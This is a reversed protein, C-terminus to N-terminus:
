ELLKRCKVEKSLQRTCRSLLSCTENLSRKRYFSPFTSMVNLADELNHRFAKYTKPDKFREKDEDTFADLIRDADREIEYLTRLHDRM